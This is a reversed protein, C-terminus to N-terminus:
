CLETHKLSLAVARRFWKCEAELSGWPGAKLARALFRWSDGNKHTFGQLSRVSLVFQAFVASM